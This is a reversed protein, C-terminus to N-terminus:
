NKDNENVTMNEVSRKSKLRKETEKKHGINVSECQMMSYKQSYKQSRKENM